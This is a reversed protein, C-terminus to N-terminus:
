RRYLEDSPACPPSSTYSASATCTSDMRRQRARLCMRWRRAKLATSRVAELLGRRVSRFIRWGASHVLLREFSPSRGLQGWM